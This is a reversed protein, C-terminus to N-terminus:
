TIPQLKPPAYAPLQALVAQADKGAALVTADPRVVAVTARGNRLWAHLAEGPATELLAAGRAEVFARQNPSLSGASVVLFSTPAVADLRIGDRGLANPAQRGPLPGALKPRHVLASRHLRPSESDLVRARMGPLLHLRPAIIRRLATGIRGGATMVNGITIAIRVM